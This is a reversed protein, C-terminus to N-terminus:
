KLYLLYAIIGFSSAVILINKYNDMPISKGYPRSFLVLPNITYENKIYYLLERTLGRRPKIFLDLYD